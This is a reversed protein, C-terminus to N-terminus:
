APEEARRKMMTVFAPRAQCRALWASSLPFPALLPAHSQGYRLCEALMLDAVTFRGGLLWDRGKLHTELRTLPRELAAVAAAMRAAGEPTEAEGRALTFMLDLGPNELATAGFLMWQDTEAAEIADKPALAGGHNRAIHLTIALSETLVMGGDEMVPITGQPNLRRFAATATHAPADAAMPDALRYAQMVPVHTFPLGLEELLWLPRTARSRYVGHITLM